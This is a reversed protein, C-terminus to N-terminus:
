MVDGCSESMEEVCVVSGILSKGCELLRDEGDTGGETEVM